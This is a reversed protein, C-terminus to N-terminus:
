GQFAVYLKLNEHAEVLYLVFADKLVLRRSIAV